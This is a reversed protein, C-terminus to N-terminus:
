IIQRKARNACFSNNTYDSTSAGSSTTYTREAELDQIRYYDNYIKWYARFPLVSVNVDQTITAATMPLGMYDALRGKDFQVHNAQSYVAYPMVPTVTGDRGGTFFDEADDWILRYPVKFYHITADVRHMIPALIAQFRLLMETRIRFQDSPLCEPLLLVPILQGIQFSLKKEHSLDFASRKVRPMPVRQFQKNKM